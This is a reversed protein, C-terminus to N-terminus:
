KLKQIQKPSIKETIEGLEESLKKISEAQYRQISNEQERLLMSRQRTNMKTNNAISILANMINDKKSDIIKDNNILIILNDKIKDNFLGHKIINIINHKQYNSIKRNTISALLGDRQQNSVLNTDFANTLNDKIDDAIQKNDLIIILKDKQYNPIEDNFIIQLFNNKRSDTINKNAIISNYIEAQNLFNTMNNHKLKIAKTKFTNITEQSIIEKAITAKKTILEQLFYQNEVIIKMIYYDNLCVNLIEPYNLIRKKIEPENLLEFKEEIQIKHIIEKNYDSLTEENLKERTKQETM